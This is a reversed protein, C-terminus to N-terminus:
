VTGQLYVCFATVKAAHSGWSHDLAPFVLVELSCCFWMCVYVGGLGCALRPLHPFTFVLMGDDEKSFRGAGACSAGAAWGLGREEGAAGVASPRRPGPCPWGDWPRQLHGNSQLPQCEALNVGHSLSEQSVGAEKGNM